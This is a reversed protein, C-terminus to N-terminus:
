EDNIVPANGLKYVLATRTNGMHIWEREEMQLAKYHDESPEKQNTTSSRVSSLAHLKM